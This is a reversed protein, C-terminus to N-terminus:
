GRGRDQARSFAQARGVVDAATYPIAMIVLSATVAEPGGVAPVTCTATTMARRDQAPVRTRMPYAPPGDAGSFTRFRESVNKSAM